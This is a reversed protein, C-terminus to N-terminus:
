RGDESGGGDKRQAPSPPRISVIEVVKEGTRTTRSKDEYHVSDFLPDKPTEMQSWHKETM